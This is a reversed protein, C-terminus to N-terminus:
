KRKTSRQTLESDSLSFREAMNLILTKTHNIHHFSKLLFDRIQIRSFFLLPRYSETHTRVVSTGLNPENFM